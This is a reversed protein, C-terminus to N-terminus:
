LVVADDCQIDGPKAGQGQGEHERVARLWDVYEHELLGGIMTTHAYVDLEFCEDVQM